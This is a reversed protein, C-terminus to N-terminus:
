TYTLMFITRQLKIKLPKLSVNTKSFSSTNNKNLNLIESHRRINRIRQVMEIQIM